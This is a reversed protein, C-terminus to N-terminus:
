RTGRVKDILWKYFVSDFTFQWEGNHGFWTEGQVPYELVHGAQEQESAWPQPYQPYYLSTHWMLDRISINDIALNVIGTMQEKGIQKGSRKISLVHTTNTKLRASFQIDQIGKSLFGSHYVRDDVCIKVFPPQEEFVTQFRLKFPLTESIINDLDV